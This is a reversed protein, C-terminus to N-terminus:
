ASSCLSPRASRDGIRRVGASASLAPGSRHGRGEAHSCLDQSRQGADQADERNHTVHQAIRLLQRDYRKVLEEFAAIDGAKSAHVLTIDDVATAMMGRQASTESM